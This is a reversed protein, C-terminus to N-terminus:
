SMEGDMRRLKRPPLWCTKEFGLVLSIQRWLPISMALMQKGKWGM